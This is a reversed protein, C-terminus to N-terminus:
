SYMAILFLIKLGMVEYEILLPLFACFRFILSPALISIKCSDELKLIARKIHGLKKNLKKIEYNKLSFPFFFEGGSAM